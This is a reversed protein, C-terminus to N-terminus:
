KLEFGESKLIKKVVEIMKEGAHKTRKLQGLKLVSIDDNATWYSSGYVMIVNHIRTTMSQNTFRLINDITFVEQIKIQGTGSIEVEPMKNSTARILTIIDAATHPSKEAERLLLTIESITLKM